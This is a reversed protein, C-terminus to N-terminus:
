DGQHCLIALAPQSLIDISGRNRSILGQKEWANLKRGIVERASGLDQALQEHTAAVTDGGKALELLRVALRRNLSSFSVEDIKAMLKSLRASFSRFVLDRFEQSTVLRDEFESKPVVVAVVDTETVAEASYDEHSLLCSTTLVCTENEAIRYLLISKGQANILDVRISGKEILYFNRCPDGARFVTAGPPLTVTQFDGLCAPRKQNTPM